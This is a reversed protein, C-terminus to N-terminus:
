NLNTGSLALIVIIIIIDDNLLQIVHSTITGNNIKFEDKVQQLTKILQFVLVKSVLRPIFANLNDVTRYIDRRLIICFTTIKSLRPWLYDLHDRHLMHKMRMRAFNSTQMSVQLPWKNYNKDTWTESFDVIGM